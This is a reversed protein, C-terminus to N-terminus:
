ERRPGDSKALPTKHAARHKRAADRQYARRADCWVCTGAPALMSGDYPVKRQLGYGQAQARTDPKAGKGERLAQLQREKPGIVTKTMGTLTRTYIRHTM